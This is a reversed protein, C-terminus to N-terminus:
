IIFVGRQGSLYRKLKWYCVLRAVWLEVKGVRTPPLQSDFFSLADIVVLMGPHLRCRYFCILGRLVDRWPAHLLLAAICM